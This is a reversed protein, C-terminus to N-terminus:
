TAPNRPSQTQAIWQHLIPPLWAKADAVEAHTTFTVVARDPAKWNLLGGDDDITVLKPTAQKKAGTHLVLRLAGQQTVGTTAFHDIISFSPSNWKISEEIRPDQKRILTCLEILADKLPHDLAELHADTEERAVAVGQEDVSITTPNRTVM